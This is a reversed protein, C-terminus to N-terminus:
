GSVPQTEVFSSTGSPLSSSSSLHHRVCLLNLRSLLSKECTSSVSSRKFGSPRERWPFHWHDESFSIHLWRVLMEWVISLSVSQHRPYINTQSTFVNEFLNRTGRKTELATKGHCSTVFSGHHYRICLVFVCVPSGAATQTSNLWEPGTDHSFPTFRTGRWQSSSCGWGGFGWGRYKQSKKISFTCFCRYLTNANM